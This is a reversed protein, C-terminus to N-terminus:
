DWRTHNLEYDLEKYNPCYEALVDYFDQSHNMVYMHSLEHYILFDVVEKRHQIARWSFSVNKNSSCSGWRGKASTVNIKRVDVHMEIAIEFVRQYLYCKALFKYIAEVCKVKVEPSGALIHFAEDFYIQESYKIPYKKGLYPLLSGEEYRALKSEFKEIVSKVVEPNKILLDKAIERTMFYPGYVVLKGNDFAIAFSKRRSSPKIVFNRLYDVM